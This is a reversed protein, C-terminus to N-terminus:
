RKTGTLPRSARSPPQEAQPADRKGGSDRYFLIGHERLNTILTKFENKLQEDKMLSPLLGDGKRLEDAASGISTASKDISKMASDASDMVQDAKDVVGEIKTFAPDLKKVSDELTKAANKFSAVASKLDASTEDNITKEDIRTIVNNLHNFSENLNKVSGDSFVGENLKKLTTRLETLAVDVKRAIEEASEQMNKLGGPPEGQIHENPPIFTTAPQDSTKVEIFSDGLLGATGIGFKSDSPIHVAEYIALPVIVGTNKPNLKPKGTVKGIRTGSLVVPTAAKIGTGDSFEVTLPYSDKFLERVSSFQLILTGLLLLGVVLFLGMLLETKGSHEEM